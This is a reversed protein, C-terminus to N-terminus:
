YRDSLRRICSVANIVEADIATTGGQNEDMGALWIERMSWTTVWIVLSATSVIKIDPLIIQLIPMKSTAYYAGETPRLRRSESTRLQGLARFHALKLEVVGGRNM